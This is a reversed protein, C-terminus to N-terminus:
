KSRSRPGTRIIAAALTAFMYFDLWMGDAQRFQGFSRTRQITWLISINGGTFRVYEPYLRIIRNNGRKKQKRKFIM